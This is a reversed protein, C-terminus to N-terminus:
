QFGVQRLAEAVTEADRRPNPLAPVARYRSNGIVLAVRREPAAAVVPERPPQVTASAVPKLEDGKLALAAQVKKVDVNAALGPELKLATQFDAVALKRDGRLLHIAARNSYGRAYKPDLAIAKDLDTMAQNFDGKQGYAFGRHSYPIASDSSLKIDQDFDAIAR